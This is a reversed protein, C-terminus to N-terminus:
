REVVPCRSAKALKMACVRHQGNGLEGGGGWIIPEAVFSFLAWQTAEDMQPLLSFDEVDLRGTRELLAVASDTALRWDPAHYRCTAIQVASLELCRTRTLAQEAAVDVAAGLAEALDDHLHCRFLRRPWPLDDVQAVRWEDVGSSM